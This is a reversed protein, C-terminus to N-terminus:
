GQVLKSGTVQGPPEGAAFGFLLVVGTLRVADDGSPQDM